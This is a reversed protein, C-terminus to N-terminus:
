TASPGLALVAAEVERAVRVMADLLRDIETRTAPEMKLKGIQVPNDLQQSPM